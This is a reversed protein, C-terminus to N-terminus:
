TVAVWAHIYEATRVEAQETQQRVIEAQRANMEEITSLVSASDESLLKNPTEYVASSSHLSETIPITDM